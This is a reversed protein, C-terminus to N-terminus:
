GKSEATAAAPVAAPAGAPTAAPAGTEGKPTTVRGSDLLFVLSEGVLELRVVGAAGYDERRSAMMDRSREFTGDVIPKIRWAQVTLFSETGKLRRVLEKAYRSEVIVVLRFPLVNYLGPVSSRGTLTTAREVVSKEKGTARTATAVVYRGQGGPMKAGPLVAYESGIRIEILEKIPANALDRKPAGKLGEENLQSLIRVLDEQLWINEQGYRCLELSPAEQGGVWDPRYFSLKPHVYMAGEKPEESKAARPDGKKVDEDVRIADLQKMFGKLAGDYEVKFNHRLGTDTSVPFLGKVLPKRQSGLTRVANLIDEYQKSRLDVQKKMEDVLAETFLTGNLIDKARTDTSRLTARMKDSPRTELFYTLLSVALSIVVVSAILIALFAHRKITDMM